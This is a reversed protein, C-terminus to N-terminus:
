AVKEDANKQRRSITQTLFVPSMTGWETIGGASVPLFSPGRLAMKQNGRDEQLSSVM